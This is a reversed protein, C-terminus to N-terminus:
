GWYIGLGGDQNDQSDSRMIWLTGATLWLSFVLLRIPALSVYVSTRMGALRSCFENDAFEGIVVVLTSSFSNRQSAANEWRIGKSLVTMKCTHGIDRLNLYSRKSYRLVSLFVGWQYRFSFSDFLNSNALTPSVGQRLRQCIDCLSIKIASGPRPHTGHRCSTGFIMYVEFQM